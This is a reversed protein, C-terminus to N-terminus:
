RSAQIKKYDQNDKYAIQNKADHNKYEQWVHQPGIVHCKKSVRIKQLGSPQKPIQNKNKKCEPWRGLTITNQARGSKKYDQNGGQFKTEM